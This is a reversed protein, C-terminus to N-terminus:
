GNNHAIKRREKEEHKIRDWCDSLRQRIETFAHTNLTLVKALSQLSKIEERLVYLSEDTTEAEFHITIFSKVDESFRFSMQRILEKRKPFVSDGATSLRQFFKNKQRIRMETKLLEKRLANIHSAQTNLEGLQNQLNQYVDQQNKLFVPLTLPKSDLRVTSQSDLISISTELAAIAIEIQEVAFSSQEDLIEKLRRAEKSLESYKGWLLARLLPSINEKFLPLCYRRVEWFTRFYPSGGQALSAEMFDIALQLKGEPDVQQDYLKRFSEFQSSGTEGLKNEQPEQVKDSSYDQEHNEVEYMKIAQVLDDRQQDQLQNISDLSSLDVQSQQQLHMNKPESM